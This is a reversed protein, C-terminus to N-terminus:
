WLCALCRRQWRCTMAPMSGMLMSVLMLIIMLKGLLVCLVAHEDDVHMDAHMNTLVVSILMNTTTILLMSARRGAHQLMSFCASDHQIM